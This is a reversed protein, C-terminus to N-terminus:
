KVFELKPQNKTLEEISVDLQEFNLKFNYLSFYKSKLQYTFDSETNKVNHSIHDLYDKFAYRKYKLSLSWKLLIM